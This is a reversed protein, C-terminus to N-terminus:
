KKKVYLFLTDCLWKNKLDQKYHLITENSFIDKYKAQGGPEGDMLWTIHNSLDYRQEPSFWFECNPIESLIPSLSKPNFYYHHAISWYFNEFADINYVSTLPDNVCPVEAIIMGGPKLIALQDEIFSKTDRIHELVFFHTILDFQITQCSNLEAMNKFFTHGKSQLYESFGGSPEIGIINAGKQRFYDMMFGSSCGVELVNMGQSFYDKLFGWRRIVENQNTKVHAEPGSWDKDRGSRKEMYKEFEKAYFKDEDEQSPTPRLYVLSCDKCEWFKHKSEGGFVVESRIFSLGKNKDTSSKSCIPCRFEM